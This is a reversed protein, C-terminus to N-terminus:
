STSKCDSKWNVYAKGSRNMLSDISGTFSIMFIKHFGEIILVINMCKAHVIKNAKIWLSQDFTVMVTQLELEESQQIIFSLTSYICPMVNLDLDINTLMHVMSKGPCDGSFVVSMYGKWGPCSKPDIKPNFRLVHWLTDLHLDETQLSPLTIENMKQFTLEFLLTNSVVMGMGHLIGKGELSSVNHDVYGKFM